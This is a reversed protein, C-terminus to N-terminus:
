RREPPLTYVQNSNVPKLAKYWKGFGDRGIADLLIRLHKIEFQRILVHLSQM